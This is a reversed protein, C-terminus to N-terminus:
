DRESASLNSVVVVVLAEDGMMWRRGEFQGDSHEIAKVVASFSV